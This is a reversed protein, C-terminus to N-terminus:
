LHLTDKKDKGVGTLEGEYVRGFYGQGVPKHLKLRERQIEWKQYVLINLEVTPDAISNVPDESINNGTLIIGILFLQNVVFVVQNRHSPANVTVKFFKVSLDGVKKCKYSGADKESINPLRFLYTAGDQVLRWKEREEKFWFALKLPNSKKVCSLVLNDGADLKLHSVESPRCQVM